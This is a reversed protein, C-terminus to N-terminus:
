YKAARRINIVDEFAHSLGKPLRRSVESRSNATFFNRAALQEVNLESLDVLKVALKIGNHRQINLARPLASSFLIRGGRTAFEVTRQM